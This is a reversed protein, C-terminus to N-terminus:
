DDDDDIKKKRYAPRAAQGASPEAPAAPPAARKAGVYALISRQPVGCVDCPAGAAGCHAASFAEGFHALQAARRCTRRQCYSRMTDLAALSAMVADDSIPAFGRAVRDENTKATNATLAKLCLYDGIAFFLTCEAARGDRGARGSEQYYGEMSKSMTHHFVYRVDPKDIGMGFAITAVVCRVAGAAWRRQTDSKVPAPLRAHYPAAFVVGAAAAAPDHRAFRENLKRAVDECDAVRFCYVIGTAAVAGAAVVRAFMDAVVNPTKPVVGYRLNARNFSARFVAPARLQLSLAIVDLVGPTASATLAMIPVSPMQRRLAGLAAYEPRFDDGWQVICHCEDIAFRQIRGARYCAQLHAMFSPMVIREPSVYVVRTASDDALLAGMTHDVAGAESESTLAVAGIGRAALGAVQNHMLSILPSVVVTFGARCVAPLQYTLSKGGGTPMVVQVDRGQLAADVIDGQPPRFATLGFQALAEQPTISSTM